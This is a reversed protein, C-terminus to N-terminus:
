RQDTSLMQVAEKHMPKLGIGSLRAFNKEALDETGVTSDMNGILIIVESARINKLALM